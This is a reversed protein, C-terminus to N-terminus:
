LRTSVGAGGAAAEDIEITYTDECEWDGYIVTHFSPFLAQRITEESIGISAYYKKCTEMFTMLTTYHAPDYVAKGEECDLRCEIGIIPSINHGKNIEGAYVDVGSPASDRELTSGDGWSHQLDPFGFVITPSFYLYGM